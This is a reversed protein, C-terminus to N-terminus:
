KNEVYERLRVNLLENWGHRHAEEWQPELLGVAHHSLKLVMGSGKEELKYTYASNVAGKMGLLGNLRIEENEKIYLVTGWLAGQGNGWDEYFKGNLAPELTLTSNEEGLRFAWWSNIDKTLAEYVKSIPANITIEQEIQFSGLATTQTNELQSTGREEQELKEKLNTLSAAIGSEYKSVWRNYVQQLPIANLYNLRTRGSRRVIVLGAQELIDLHKM